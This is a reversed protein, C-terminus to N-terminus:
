PGPIGDVTIKIERTYLALDIAHPRNKAGLKAICHRVHTEVTAPSINLSHSIGLGTEGIAILTLVERERESLDHGRGERTRAHQTPVPTALVVLHHGSAAHATAFYGFLRPPGGPRRFAFTGGQTGTRLFAEWRPEIEHQWEAPTLEDVKHRLIAGRDIDLLSCASPNAGVCRRQDDVVLMPVDSSEFSPHMEIAGPAPERSQM